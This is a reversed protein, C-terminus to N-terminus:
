VVIGAAYEVPAGPAEAGPGIDCPKARCPFGFTDRLARAPGQSRARDVIPTKFQGAAAV